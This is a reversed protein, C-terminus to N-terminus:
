KAREGKVYLLLIEELTADDVVANPYRTRAAEKDDVLVSWQCEEKRFALVGSRDLREFQASGCRLIGWRYRLEDKPKCFLVRGQHLFVIYDAIKELDSTIHSSILIAHEEDQVFELFVDLIDDRVVPDLGGTAEDLILLKPRHSLAVAISLKMKTGKSLTKLEKNAPIGFRELYRQFAAVDWQRYAAGAIRGVQAPTQTQYFNISDFVVGIDERLDPAAALEQGWFTVQGADRRILELAARLTTSKGAGNEGILGVISGKPVEFSVDELAFGPYRRSLGTIKLSAEM